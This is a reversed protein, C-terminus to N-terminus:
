YYLRWAKSKEDTFHSERAAMEWRETPQNDDTSPPQCPLPATPRDERTTARHTAKILETKM